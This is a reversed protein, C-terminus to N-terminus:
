APVADRRYTAPTRGSWRKFARTFTSQESFGTLFAVEALAYDTRRLLREALDRRAEDVLDQFAHGRESLRRQLTRGSLGLRDAVDAVTPVGESLAQAIQIRVRRDLGQDDALAALEKDLHADFFESISADGLRNTASLLEESVELADRDSGYHVPCGFYAEHASIDGPSPHKFYVADPSFSRQSVERSIETIAVVTQENSIRLGLRREGERHLMMYVRGHESRVEYASVSTLVRGYREARQYSGRLDVASKWALGFAGYDDCRMSAGVRLPMSVGHADERVVRECLGYYDSDLIMRKPDVPADPDVGVSQLMARRRAVDRPAAVMAADVVKHVFLTSIQGM